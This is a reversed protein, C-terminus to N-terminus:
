CAWFSMFVALAVGIAAIDGWQMETHVGEDFLTSFRKIRGGTSAILRCTMALQKDQQVKKALIWLVADALAHRDISYRLVAADSACEQDLELRKLWWKTPIWWLLSAVAMYFWKWIPDQWRLHELEHAIVAEFEQQSLETALSAPMLITRLRIACPIEIRNSLRVAVNLKQLAVTLDRNGVVRECLISEQLIANVYRFSRLFQISKCVLGAGSITLVTIMFGHLWLPPIHMAIYQPIILHEGPSLDAAVADSTLSKIVDAFFVQCSFPNLNILIDSDFVTFAIVDVPIKFFALARLLARTRANRIKFLWLICEIFFAVVLFVLLSNLVIHLFM